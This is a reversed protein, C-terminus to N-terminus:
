AGIGDDNGPPTDAAVDTDAVAVVVDGDGASFDGALNAGAVAIVRQHPVAAPDDARLDQHLCAVVAGSQAIQGFAGEGQGRTEIATTAIVQQGEIM